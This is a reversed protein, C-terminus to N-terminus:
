RSEGGGQNRSRNLNTVLGHLAVEAESARIEIKRVIASHAIVAPVAVALGAITTSLARGIGFAIEGIDKDAVSLGGFVQVLGAATGLLGLLPSITIIVEMASLGWQMAVMMRRAKVEVAKSVEEDSAGMQSESIATEVIARLPSETSDDSLVQELPEFSPRGDSGAAQGVASWLAPPMTRDTRMALARVVVIFIVGVGCLMIMWLFLGGQEFFEGFSSYLGPSASATMSSNLVNMM